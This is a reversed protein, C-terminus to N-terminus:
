QAAVDPIGASAVVSPLVPQTHMQPLQAVLPVAAPPAAALPVAALPVASDTQEDLM